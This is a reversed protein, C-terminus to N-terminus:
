KSVIVGSIGLRALKKLVIDAEQQAAFPGVRVRTLTGNPTEVQTFRASVGLNDLKNNLADIKASDSLAALQIFVKTTPKAPVTTNKQVTSLATEGDIRGELIAAPDPRAVRKEEKRKDLKYTDIPPEPPPKPVTVLGSASVKPPSTSAALPPPATMAQPTPRREGQREAPVNALSAPLETVPPAVDSAAASAEKEALPEVLSAPPTLPSENEPRAKSVGESAEGTVEIFEPKMHQDPVHSVIQWLISGSVVVMVTAGVLRRRARKRLAMLQEHSSLGAM